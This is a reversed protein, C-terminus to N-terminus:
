IGEIDGAQRGVAEGEPDAAADHQEAGPITLQRITHVMVLSAM